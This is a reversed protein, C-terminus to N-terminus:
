PTTPEPGAPGAGSDREILVDIMDTIRRMGEAARGFGGRMESRVDAFGADIKAELRDFRPDVEDFRRDMADFRGRTQVSLGNLARRLAEVKGGLDGVEAHAAAALVRAAGADDVAKAVRARLEEDGAM